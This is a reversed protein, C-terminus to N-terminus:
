PRATVAQQKSPPVVVELRPPKGTPSASDANVARRKVAAPRGNRRAAKGNRHAARQPFLAAEISSFDNIAQQYDEHRGIDLWYGNYRYSGVQHGATILRHVLDPVDFPKTTPIYSLVEPSLVYVGMSVTFTIEPKEEYDTISSMPAVSDGLSLVGYETCIVREHTAITMVNESEIHAQYLARYDLTTLVDGNLMLFPGDLRRVGSLAGVTGLPHEEHHYDITVAHESGDGFIAEILYSLYGVAFTLDTFGFAALQGVLIDLIARDGVPLLPKPIVTTYPSLRSGVGGALVVARDSTPIQASVSM